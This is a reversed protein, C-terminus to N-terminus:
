HQLQKVLLDATAGNMAQVLNRRWFGILQFHMIASEHFGSKVIARRSATNSEEIKTIIYEVGTPELADAIESWAAPAVGRGRYSASTLSDELCVIEPPLMLRAGPAALMPMSGHFIWCAFVLQQGDLVLWLDAGSEM